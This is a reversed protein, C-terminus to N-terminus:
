KSDRDKSVGKDKPVTVEATVITSNGCADTVEYTITYIRGDGTGSREARLQFNLDDVIVIDNPTDGDGLGDDPENSTVSILETTANPDKDTIDVTVTVDVYKHNPPWLTDPSATATVVPPTTECIGVVVPDHDSSRFEDPNFLLPQNYDNYDLASPEDANVHWFAAGTVRPLLAPSSIGHDLYGSQSFFNYSYAGDAWGTGAFAEILDTYGAAELTTVPDEMAYANLDGNVIYLGDGSGTPDTALWDVIAQAAATRTLNCNGQGDGTDPDGVDDCPSGKSKLHNVAVTVVDNTGNELFTQALVPRNKTDDFNPDFSSDLIAYGGVPTVAAPKFLIAQRIADTGIAGTIIYDYTGAGAVANLGAVLDATPEDGPHNEIEMLGVIDADLQSIADVLKAKQREFEFVSDAGRCEQNEDPGCIPNDTDITTFYNLVNYAAVKLSGGVDPADLRPNERTFTVTQTPHIEYVGFAYGIAGTLSPITDGTRLTNDPGLYPPLPLPNQVTSGDDMQIRSRDNLEQLAVAADGPEVVNTPNDLPAGVSLDVEGYRGQTFNGSAYLTQPITIQMGEVTEWFDLSAVPLTVTTPTATNDPPDLCVAIDTVNNIETLGFFEAVTGRVRVVDGPSVGPGFGGTFVFIGESTNPDDDIDRDEEQLNFGGLQDTGDFDGVVVGELTRVSGVDPSVPGDGQVNHVLTASDFCAGFPDTPVTIVANVALPTNVAEGVEPSGIFGPFGYGDFDNRVWDAVADTDVGNPIRSAGGAGFPDGDFFPALVTTSYTRDSSGGDSTAVDDVIRTWPTVDFIGDNDTDLDDGQDGSFGEVLMITITGNEMDEPDTWYGGAETTGVPLVADIVGASSGDGEIELVTFGSYDTSPSGFVEVFANTDSGTHNAVFENIVPDAPGGGCAATHLGINSWDENDLVIWESNTANTGRSADWDTTPSCVTSKRVLVHDVTGNTIGAVEWGSGPDAGDTGGADILTGGKALGVADDGNHSINNSSISVDGASSITSVAGPNYVVAVQGPQLTGSLTITAEPWTGGNSIRWVEYGALDVASDTSNSIEIYKNLSSGEGYESIILDTAQAQAIPAALVMAVLLLIGTLALLPVKNKM